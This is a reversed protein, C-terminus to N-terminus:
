GNLGFQERNGEPVLDVYEPHRKIYENIFPCFPLVADGNARAEDLVHQAVKSGLGQGEFRDDIETHLFAILGEKGRYQVLGAHEGDVTVDYQQAGANRTIVPDAM